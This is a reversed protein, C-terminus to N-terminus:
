SRRKRNVKERVDKSTMKGSFDQQLNELSLVPVLYAVRGKAIVDVKTGPRLGLVKRIDEPIVIQYKLSVKVSM